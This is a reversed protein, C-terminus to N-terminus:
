SLALAFFKALTIAALFTVVLWGKSGSIAAVTPLVVAAALIGLWIYLGFPQFLADLGRPALLALWFITLCLAGLVGAFRGGGGFPKM